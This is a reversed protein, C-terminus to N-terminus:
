KQLRIIAKTRWTKKLSPEPLSSHSSPPSGPVVVLYLITVYVKTKWIIVVHLYKVLLSTASERIHCCVNLFSEGLGSSHGSRLGSSTSRGVLNQIWIYRKLPGQHLAEDVYDPWHPVPHFLWLALQRLLEQGWPRPPDLFLLWVGQWLPLCQEGFKYPGGHKSIPVWYPGLKEHFLSGIPVRPLWFLSGFRRNIFNLTYSSTSVLM